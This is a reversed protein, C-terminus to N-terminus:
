CAPPNGDRGPVGPAQRRRGWALWLSLALLSGVGIWAGYEGVYGVLPELARGFVYAAGGITGAWVIVSILNLLMFRPWSIRSAGIALLAATRLGYLFRLSLIVPVHHRQLLTEVRLAKSQLSANRALLGPGFRRGAAFCCQDGFFGAAAAVLMVTPLGLYGQSAAIGAILLATEGELLIGAALALYAYNGLLHLVDM